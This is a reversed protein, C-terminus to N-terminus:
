LAEQIFKSRLTHKVLQENLTMLHNYGTLKNLFRSVHNDNIKLGEASKLQYTAEYQETEGVKHTKITKSVMISVLYENIFWQFFNFQKQQPLLLVSYAPYAFCLKSLM